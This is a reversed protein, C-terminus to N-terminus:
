LAFSCIITGMGSDTWGHKYTLYCYLQNLRCSEPMPWPMRSVASPAKLAMFLSEFRFCFLTNNPSLGSRSQLKVLSMFIRSANETYGEWEKWDKREESIEDLMEQVAVHADRGATKAGKRSVQDEQEAESM